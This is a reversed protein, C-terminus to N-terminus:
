RAFRACEFVVPGNNGHNFSRTGWFRKGVSRRQQPLAHKEDMECEDDM